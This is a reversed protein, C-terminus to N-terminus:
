KNKKCMTNYTNKALLHRHHHNNLKKPTSGEVELLNQRVAPQIAGTGYAEYYSLHMM